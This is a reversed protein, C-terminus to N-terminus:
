LQLQNPVFKIDFWNPDKDLRLNKIINFWDCINLVMVNYTQLFFIFLVQLVSFLLSWNSWPSDCHWSNVSVYCFTMAERIFTQKALNSNSGWNISECQKKGNHFSGQWYKKKPPACNEFYVANLVFLDAAVAIHNRMKMSNSARPSSTRPSKRLWDYVNKKTFFFRELLKQRQFFRRRLKNQLIIVALLIRRQFKQQPNFKGSFIEWRPLNTTSIKAASFSQRTWKVKSALWILKHM